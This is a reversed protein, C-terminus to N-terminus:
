TEPTWCGCPDCIDFIEENKQDCYHQQGTESHHICSKCTHYLDYMEEDDDDWEDIYDEELERDLEDLMDEIEQLSALEEESMTHDDTM